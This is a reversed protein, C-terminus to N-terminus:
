RHRGGTSAAAYASHSGLRRPRPRPEGDRRTGDVQERPRAESLLRRHQTEVTLPGLDLKTARPDTIAVTSCGSRRRAPPQASARAIRDQRRRRTGAPRGPLRVSLRPQRSRRDRPHPLLRERRPPGCGPRRQRGRGGDPRTGHRRRRAHQRPRSLRRGAPRGAASREAVLPDRTRGCGSCRCRRAGHACRPRVAPAYPSDAVPRADPRPPAVEDWDPEAEVPVMRELEATIEADIDIM